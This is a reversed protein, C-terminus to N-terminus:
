RDRKREKPAPFISQLTIIDLVAESLLLAFAGLVAKRWRPRKRKENAAAKQLLTSLYGCGLIMLFCCASLTGGAASITEAVRRSARKRTSFGACMVLIGALFGYFLLMITTQM